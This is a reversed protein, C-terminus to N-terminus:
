VGRDIALFRSRFSLCCVFTCVFSYIFSASHHMLSKRDSIPPGILAIRVWRRSDVGFELILLCGVLAGSRLSPFNLGYMSGRVPLVQVAMASSLVGSLVESLGNM